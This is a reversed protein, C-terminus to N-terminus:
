VCGMRTENGTPSSALHILGAPAAVFHVPNAIRGTRLFSAWQRFGAGIFGSFFLNYSNWFTAISIGLGYGLKNRRISLVAIVVYLVSQFLHLVLV